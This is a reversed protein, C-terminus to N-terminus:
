RVSLGAQSGTPLLSLKSFKDWEVKYCVSAIIRVAKM